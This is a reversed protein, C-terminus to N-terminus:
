LRQLIFDIRSYFASVLGLITGLTTGIAVVGIGVLLSTRAGHVIRSFMDRGLHATGFFNDTSPPAFRNSLEQITPHHTAIVPAFVAVVVLLLFIFLGVTGLPQDAMLRRAQQWRTRRRGTQVPAVVVTSHAESAM